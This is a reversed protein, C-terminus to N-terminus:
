HQIHVRQLNISEGDEPVFCRQQLGEELLKRSLDNRRLYCHNVAEMHVAIVQASSITRCVKVVDSATMTIPDGKVFQAAGANVVVYDPTFEELAQEVESCWITDGAIYLKNSDYELVFGSVQGMMQGIEGTGHQGGTRYIKIGKFEITDEVPIIKEFGQNQFTTEDGPQCILPLKKDLLEQAKSDWHDRHTHTVIVADLLAIENILQAESLPFETMPIRISNAAMPAPDMASKASLMPDILLKVKGIELLFTAHRLFHIKM